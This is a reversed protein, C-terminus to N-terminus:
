LPSFAAMEIFREKCFIVVKIPSSGVVKQEPSLRGVMPSCPQIVTQGGDM